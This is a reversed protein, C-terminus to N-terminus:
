LFRCPRFFQRLKDFKKQQNYPKYQMLNEPLPQVRNVGVLFGLYHLKTKFFECRSCKIKLNATELQKFVAELYELHEEWTSSFIMIDNLYNLTFKTHPVLVKGLLFSFASLGINIGFPLSHIIWKGKDTIFASKEAAEKTLWILYYGPKLDISSFFRCGNFRVLLDEITRLPYKSIVKVLSGNAKIQRATM